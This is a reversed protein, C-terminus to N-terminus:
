VAKKKVEIVDGGKLFLHGKHLKGDKRLGDCKIRNTCLSRAPISLGIQKPAIKKNPSGLYSELELKAIVVEKYLRNNKKVKGNELANNIRKLLRNVKEITPKLGQLSVHSKLLTIAYNVKQENVFVEMENYLEKDTFDINADSKSPNVADFLAVVKKNVKTFLDATKSTKRISRDLAAKQFAMYVLKIKRFSTTKHLRILNYFRRILRYEASYNDITKLKVKTQIKNTSKKAPIKVEKKPNSYYDPYKKHLIDELTDKTFYFDLEIRGNNVIEDISIYGAEAMQTDGNLIVYGFMLKDKPIIDTIYWDSGGYFYHAYVTSKKISEGQPEKPIETLEKELREVLSKSFISNQQTLAKQQNKPMLMKVYITEKILQNTTKSKMKKQSIINKLSGKKFHIDLKALKSNLFRSIPVSKSKLSIKGNTAWVGYFSHDKLQSLVYFDTKPTYYHTYAINDEISDEEKYVTPIKALDKELKNIISLDSDSLMKQQHLPMLKKIQKTAKIQQYTTTHKQM